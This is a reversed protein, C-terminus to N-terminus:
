TTGTLVVVLTPIILAIVSSFLRLRTRALVVLLGMAALGVALAPWVIMSPEALAHVAKTLATDGVAPVGLLDPVRGLIINVAIGTLFGLMVSHSVFRLYRGVHLLAAALTVLGVILTLLILADSRQEPAVGELASGAALAAASTTTIVMLRTSSSLGGAIPGAFSAYLGHVPSVGALVSAAMGDPVGSIAGTLGPLVGGKLDAKRPRESFWWAALAARARASLRHPPM